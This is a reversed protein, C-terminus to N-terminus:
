RKNVILELSNLSQLVKDSNLNSAMADISQSMQSLASIHKGNNELSSNLQATIKSLVNFNQYSEFSLTKIKELEERLNSLNELSLNGDMQRPSNNDSFLKILKETQKVQLKQYFQEQYDSAVNIVKQFKVGIYDLVPEFLKAIALVILSKIEFPVSLGLFIEPGLKISVLLFAAGILPLATAYGDILSISSSIIRDINERPTTSRVHSFLGMYEKIAISIFFLYSIVPLWWFQIPEVTNEAQHWNPYLSKAIDITVNGLLPVSSIDIFLSGLLVIFSFIAPKILIIPSINKLHNEKIQNIKDNLYQDDLLNAKGNNNAPTQVETM